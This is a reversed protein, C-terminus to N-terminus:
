KRRIIKEKKIIKNKFFKTKYKKNHKILLKKHKNLILFITKVLNSKNKFVLHKKSKKKSNKLNNKYISSCLM